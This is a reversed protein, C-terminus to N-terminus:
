DKRRIGQLYDKKDRCRKDNNRNCIICSRKGHALEWKALNSEKFEHGKPCHTKKKNHNNTSLDGRLLNVKRTVIELHDPNVCSRNRCLHDLDFGKPIEGKFLEYSFRHAKFNKRGYLTFQGYGNFFKSATWNWCKGSDDIKKLFRIITKINISNM